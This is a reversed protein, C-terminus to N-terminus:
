VIQLESSFRVHRSTRCCTTGDELRVEYSRHPLVRAMEAKHWDNDDHRIQMTQGISLSPREKLAVVVGSTVEGRHTGVTSCGCETDIVSRRSFTSTSNQNTPWFDTARAVPRVARLAHNVLGACHWWRAVLPDGYESAKLMLQKATQV